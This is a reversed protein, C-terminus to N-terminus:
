KIGLEALITSDNASEPYHTYVYRLLERLPLKNFRRKVTEIATLLAPLDPDRRASRLLDDVREIGQKSLAYRRTEYREPLDESVGSMLYDFSLDAERLEPKDLYASSAFDGSSDGVLEAFNLSDSTPTESGAILGMNELFALDDYIKPDYPGFAYAEFELHAARKFVGYDESLIFLMKTLRTRGEVAEFARGTSGKAHLLLMIARRRGTIPSTSM